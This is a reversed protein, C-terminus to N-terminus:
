LINGRSDKLIFGNGLPFRRPEPGARDYMNSTSTNISSTHPTWTKCRQNNLTYLPHFGIDMLIIPIKLVGNHPEPSNFLKLDLNNKHSLHITVFGSSLQEIRM